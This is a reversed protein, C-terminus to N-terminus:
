IVARGPVRGTLRRALGGARGVVDAAPRLATIASTLLVPRVRDLTGQVAADLARLGARRLQSIRDLLLAGNNGVIGVLLIVGIYGSSTFSAGTWVYLYCVGVLALPITALVIFPHWLNEYLVALVLFMVLVAGALAWALMRSEDETVAYEDDRDVSFGPPTRVAEFM